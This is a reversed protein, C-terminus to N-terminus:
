VGIFLIYICHCKCIKFVFPHYISDVRTQLIHLVVYVYTYMSHILLFECVIHQRKGCSNIQRARLIKYVLQHNSTTMYLSDYEINSYVTAYINGRYLMGLGHRPLGKFSNRILLLQTPSTGEVKGLKCTINESAVEPQFDTM